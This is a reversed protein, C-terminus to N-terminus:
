LFIGIGIYDILSKNRVLNESNYFFTHIEAISVLAFAFLYLLCMPCDFVRGRMRAAHADGSHWDRRASQGYIYVTM